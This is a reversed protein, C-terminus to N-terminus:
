IPLHLLPSFAPVPFAVALHSLLLLFLLLFVNYTSHLSPIDVLRILLFFINFFPVYLSLILCLLLPPLIIFPFSTFSWYLSNSKFSFTLLV